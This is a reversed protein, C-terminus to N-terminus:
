PKPPKRRTRPAAPDTVDPLAGGAVEWFYLSAVSGCPSLRRRYKEFLRKTIKRHRYVMRMGRQIGLDGFSLIDPRGLSFLLLMEATWVGVGKLSSLVAVAEADTMDPLADIRFEGSVTKAALEKVYEVKRMSLGCARLAAADASDLNGPSVDGICDCIRRWTAQAARGSVQQGAINRVICSFLDPHMERRVHGIRDIVAGLRKDRSKIRDTEKRGYRFIM